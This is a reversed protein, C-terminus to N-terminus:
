AGEEFNEMEQGTTESFLGAFKYDNEETWEVFKDTVADETESDPVTLIGSIKIQM